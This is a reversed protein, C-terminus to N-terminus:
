MGRMKEALEHAEKESMGCASVMKNLAEGAVEKIGEQRVKRTKGCGIDQNTFTVEVINKFWEAAPVRWPDALCTSRILRQVKERSDEYEDDFRYGDGRRRKKGRFATVCAYGAPYIGYRQFTSKNDWWWQDMNDENELGTIVIVIPIKKQCIVEHFIKWNKPVSDRVRPARMVFVLLSVGDSLKRLLSYLQAIADAKVVRGADGENLGATDWLTVPQGLVNVEFSRSEFTCGRASSSIDAAHENSSLMNVISSKGAGCEGFLVINTRPM